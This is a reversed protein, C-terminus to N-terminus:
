VRDDAVPRARHLELAAQITDFQGETLYAVQTRSLATSVVVPAL